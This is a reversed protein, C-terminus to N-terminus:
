SARRAPAVWQAFGPGGRRPLAPVPAEPILVKWKLGDPGDWRASGAWLGDRGNLDTACHSQLFPCRRCVTEATVRLQEWGAADDRKPIDFRRPDENRCPAFDKWGGSM